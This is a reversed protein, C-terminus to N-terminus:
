RVIALKGAISTSGSPDTVLVLYVGSACPKGTTDTTDWQYNGGLSIGRNVVQGGLTAIKVEADQTLGQITILNPHESRLPNPYIHLNDKELTGCADTADSQYSALGGATAIYVEGTNGNVALNYIQNSPLPSNDTTFHHITEIGDASVLYLGNDSTGIWKRNAGDVAIATIGVGNLLYDAYNTGDNRPVKIQYMLFNESFWEEPKDVVFLGMDTGIWITGDLDPRVCYTAGITYSTGDENRFSTRFTSKRTTPDYCFIGGRHEGAYRRDALWLRGDQDFAINAIESSGVLSKFYYKTWKGEPSRRVIVSDASNNAMWLDGKADFALASLRIYHDNSPVLTTLPSNHLGYRNVMKGNRYEMLGIGCHAVFIHSSDRPDEIADVCDRYRNAALPFPDASYDGSLRGWEKGDYTMVLAPHHERDTADQRGSIDFLRSGTWRLGYHFSSEPGYPILSSQLTAKPEANNRVTGPLTGSAKTWSSADLPNATAPCTLLTNDDKQAYLVNNIYRAARTPGIRYYGKIAAKGIQIHIIGEATCLLADDPGAWLSRLEIVGDPQQYYQPLNQTTGRQTNLLDINGDDYVLVLTHRAASYDMLAINTASLGTAKDYFRVEATQKDYSLLSGGEYLGYITSGCDAADQLTRYSRHLTWQAHIPMSCALLLTCLLTLIPTTVKM